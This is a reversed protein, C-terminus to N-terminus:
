RIEVECMYVSAYIYFTFVSWERIYLRARTPNSRRRRWWWGRLWGGGGGGGAASSAAAARKVMRFRWAPSTISEMASACVGERRAVGCAVAAAEAHADDNLVDTRRGDAERTERDDEAAVRVPRPRDM